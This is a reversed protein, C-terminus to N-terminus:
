RSLKLVYESLEINEAFKLRKINGSFIVFNYLHLPTDLPIFPFSRVPISYCFYPLVLKSCEVKAFICFWLM